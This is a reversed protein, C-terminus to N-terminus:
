KKLLIRTVYETAFSSIVMKLTWSCLCFCAIKDANKQMSFHKLFLFEVIVITNLAFIKHQNSISRREGVTPRGAAM